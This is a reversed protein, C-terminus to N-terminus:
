REHSKQGSKELQLLQAAAENGGGASAGLLANGIQRTTQCGTLLVGITIILIGRKVRIIPTKMGTYSIAGDKILGKIIAQQLYEVKETKAGSRDISIATM